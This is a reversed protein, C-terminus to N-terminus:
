DERSRKIDERVLGSLNFLTKASENSGRKDRKKNSADGLLDGMLQVNFRRGLSYHSM